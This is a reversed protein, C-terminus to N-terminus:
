KWLLETNKTKGDLSLIPFKNGDTPYYMGRLTYDGIETFSPVSIHMFPKVTVVENQNDVVIKSLFETSPSHFHGSIFADMGDIMYPFLKTRGKTAGHGLVITYSVQRDARRQGLNIKIFAMNFRYLHEIDLKAFVDYMPCSGVLNNSRNEHNGQVGGLIRDKLEEFETAVWWKQDFPTMTAQFVNTKSNKTAMDMIDGILVVYGNPDALVADKWRRFAKESFQESGIHLDGIPYINIYELDRDLKHVILDFDNRM